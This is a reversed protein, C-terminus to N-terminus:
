YIKGNSYSFVITKLGAKRTKTIMDLTGKSQGDWFAILMGDPKIYELMQSNRIHGARRGYKDWDAPFLKLPIDNEQAYREGLKDAGKATGSVIETIFETINKICSCLYDYNQFDRSGAIITKM